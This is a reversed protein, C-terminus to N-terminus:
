ENYKACDVLEYQISPSFILLVGAGVGVYGTGNTQPSATSLLTQLCAEKLYFDDGPACKEASIEVFSHQAGLM